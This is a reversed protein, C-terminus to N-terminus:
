ASASIHRLFLKMLNAKVSNDGRRAGMSLESARRFMTEASRKRFARIMRAVTLSENLIVEGLALLFQGQLAFQDVESGIKFTKIVELVDDLVNDNYLTELVSVSSITQPGNGGSGKGTNIKFGHQLVIANVAVQKPRGNRLAARFRTNASVSSQTNCDVFIGSEIKITSDPVIRCWVHDLNLDIHAGTEQQGDVIRMEGDSRLGVVVAKCALPNWEAVMNAVQQKRLGRQYEEQDVIPNGDLDKLKVIEVYGHLQGHQDEMFTGIKASVVQQVNLGVYKKRLTMDTEKTLASDTHTVM